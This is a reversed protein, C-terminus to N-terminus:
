HPVNNPEYNYKYMLATLNLFATNYEPIKKSWHGIDDLFEKTSYFFKEAGGVANEAGGDFLDIYNQAKLLYNSIDSFIDWAKNFYDDTVSIVIGSDYHLRFEEARSITRFISSQNEELSDRWM